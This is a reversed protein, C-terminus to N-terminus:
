DTRTIVQLTKGNDNMLYAETRIPIICNHPSNIADVMMVSTGNEIGRYVVANDIKDYYIWGRESPDTTAVKLIM